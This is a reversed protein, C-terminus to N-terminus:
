DEAHDVVLGLCFYLGICIFNQFMFIFLVADRRVMRNKFGNYLFAGLHSITSSYCQQLIFVFLEDTSNLKASTPLDCIKNIENMLVIREKSHFDCNLLMHLEDDVKCDKCFRCTRLSTPIPPRFHRGLEIFLCHSSTRFRAISSM